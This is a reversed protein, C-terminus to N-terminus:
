SSMFLYQLRSLGNLYAEFTLALIVKWYGTEETHLLTVVSFTTVANSISICDDLEHV